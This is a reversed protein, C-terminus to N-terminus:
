LVIRMVAVVYITCLVVVVLVAVGGGTALIVVVWTTFLVLDADDGSDQPQKEDEELTKKMKEEEGKKEEKKCTRTMTYVSTNYEGGVVGMSLNYVKIQCDDLYPRVAVDHFTFCEECEQLQQEECSVVTLLAILVLLM